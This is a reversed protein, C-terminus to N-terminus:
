RSSRALEQMTRDKITGKRIRELDVSAGSSEAEEGVNLRGMGRLADSLRAAQVLGM